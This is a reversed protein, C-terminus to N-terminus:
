ASDGLTQRLRALARLWLKEVSDLSRGMRKAVEPFTLGELNRLVIAERYDEPLKDLADALLVAQERRAAQQSPSSQAAVLGCGLMVSSRDFGEAIERELRVDRGQTGLYRRLLDALKAALIERLWRVLQAESTGRFRAFNRHAELFTEQVLDSADVKGQLRQGIQVRALLALYRRYLELLQGLTTPDGVRAAQLLNEPDATM